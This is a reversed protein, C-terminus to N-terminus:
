LLIVDVFGGDNQTIVKLALRVLSVARKVTAVVHASSVPVQLARVISVCQDVCV